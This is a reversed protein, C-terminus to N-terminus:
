PVQWGVYTDVGLDLTLVGNVIFTNFTTSM